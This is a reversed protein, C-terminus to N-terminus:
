RPLLRGALYGGATAVAMFWEQFWMCGITMMIVLGSSVLHFWKQQLLRQWM